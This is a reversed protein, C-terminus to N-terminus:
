GRTMRAAPFRWPRWISKRRGAAAGFFHARNEWAAQQDGGLRQWAVHVLATPQLTQGAAENVMRRAALRRLEDYVLSLLEDDARAAGQQISHLIRTVDNM